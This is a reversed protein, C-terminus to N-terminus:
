RWKEKCCYGHALSVHKERKIERKIGGEGRERQRQERRDLWFWSTIYSHSQPTASREASYRPVHETKRQVHVRICVFFSRARASNSTACAIMNRPEPSRIHYPQLIDTSESYSNPFPFSSAESDFDKADTEIAEPSRMNQLKFYTM